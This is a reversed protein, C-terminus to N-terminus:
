FGSRYHSYIGSRIGDDYRAPDFEITGGTACAVLWGAAAAVFALRFIHRPGSM